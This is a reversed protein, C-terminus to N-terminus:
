SACITPFAMIQHVTIQYDPYLKVYTQLIVSEPSGCRAAKKAFGSKLLLTKEAFLITINTM